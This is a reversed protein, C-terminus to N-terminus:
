SSEGTIFINLQDSMIKIRVDRDKLDLGIYSYFEDMHCFAMQLFVIIEFAILRCEQLTKEGRFCDSVMPVIYEPTSMPNKLLLSPIVTKTYRRASFVLDSMDVIYNLLRKKPDDSTGGRTLLEKAENEVIKMFAVRILEDKSGFYYNITSINVGANGIIERVTINNPDDADKLLDVTTSILLEKTNKTKM